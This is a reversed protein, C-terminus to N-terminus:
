LPELQGLCKLIASASSDGTVQIYDHVCYPMVLLFMMLLGVCMCTYQVNRLHINVTLQPFSGDGSLVNLSISSLM